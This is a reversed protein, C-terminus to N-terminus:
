TSPVVLVSHVFSSPRKSECCANMWCNLYCTERSQWVLSLLCCTRHVNLNFLTNYVNMYACCISCHTKYVNKYTCCILCHTKYVNMSVCRILCCTKYVNMCACCILCHIMYVHVQTQTHSSPGYRSLLLADRLLGCLSCCLLFLGAFLVSVVSVCLCVCVCVCVCVCM